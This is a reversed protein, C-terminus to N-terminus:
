EVVRPVVFFGDHRAPANALVKERLNGDNVVDDRWRQGQAQPQALPAITETEVSDLQEIWGLIQGLERALPALEEEAVRLRALRAIRAVTANDLSM